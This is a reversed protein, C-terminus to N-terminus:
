THAEHTPAATAPITKARTVPLADSLAVDVVLLPPLAFAAVFAALGGDFDGARALREGPRALFHAHVSQVLDRARRALKLRDRDLGFGRACPDIYPEHPDDVPLSSVAHSNVSKPAALDTKAGAERKRTSANKKM